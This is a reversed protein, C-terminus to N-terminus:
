KRFKRSRNTSKRGGSQTKGHKKYLYFCGIIGAGALTILMISSDDLVM